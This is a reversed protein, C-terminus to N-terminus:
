VMLLSACVKVHVSYYLCLTYRIHILYKFCGNPVTQSYTQLYNFEGLFIHKQIQFSEESSESAFCELNSKVDLKLKHSM